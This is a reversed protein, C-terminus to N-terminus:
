IHGLCVPSSRTYILVGRGLREPFVSTITHGSSVTSCVTLRFVVTDEHLSDAAAFEQTRGQHLGHDPALPFPFCDGREAFCDHQLLLHRFTLPARGRTSGRAGELSILLQLPWGPGIGAPAAPQEFSIDRDRFAFRVLLFM